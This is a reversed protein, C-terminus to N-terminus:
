RAGGFALAVPVDFSFPRLRLRDRLSHAADFALVFTVGAMPLTAYRRADDEDLLVYDGCVYPRSQPFTRRVALAIPDRRPDEPRGTLIDRWGVRVQATLAPPPALHSPAPVHM